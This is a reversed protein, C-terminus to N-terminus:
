GEASYNKLVDGLTNEKFTLAGFFGVTVYMACCLGVTTRVAGQFAETKSGPVERFERYVLLFFIFIPPYFLSYKM